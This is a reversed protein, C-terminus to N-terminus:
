GAHERQAEAVTRCGLHDELFEIVGAGVEGDDDLHIGLVTRAVDESIDRCTGEVPNFQYVAEVHEIQGSAIDETVSAESTRDIGLEAFYRSGKHNCLVTCFDRDM